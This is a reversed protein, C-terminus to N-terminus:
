AAEEYESDDEIASVEHAEERQWIVSGKRRLTYVEITEDLYSSEVPTTLGVAVKDHYPCLPLGSLTTQGSLLQHCETITGDGKHVDCQCTHHSM